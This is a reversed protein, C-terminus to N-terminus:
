RMKSTAAIFAAIFPLTARVAHRIMWQDMVNHLAAKSRITFVQGDCSQFNGKNGKMATVADDLPFIFVREWWAVQVLTVSALAFCKWNESEQTEPSQSKVIAILALLAAIFANLPELWVGGRRFTEEFQNIASITPNLKIIPVVWLKFCWAIGTFLTLFLLAKAVFYLDKGSVYFLSIIAAWEIVPVASQISELALMDALTTHAEFDETFGPTNSLCKYSLDPM